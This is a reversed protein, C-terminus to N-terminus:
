RLKQRNKNKNADIGELVDLIRVNLKAMEVAEESANLVGLSKNKQIENFKNNLVIAERDINGSQIQSLMLLAKNTETAVILKKIAEKIKDQRFAHRCKVAVDRIAVAHM